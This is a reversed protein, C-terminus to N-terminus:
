CHSERRFYCTTVQLVGIHSNHVSTVPQLMFPIHFFVKAFQLMLPRLMIFQLFQDTQYSYSCQASHSSALHGLSKRLLLQWVREFWPDERFGGLEISLLLSGSARGNRTRGQVRLPTETKRIQFIEKEKVARSVHKSIPWACQHREM